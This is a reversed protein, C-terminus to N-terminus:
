KHQAVIELLRTLQAEDLFVREKAFLLRVEEPFQPLIDAIKVALAADVFPLTRLAELLKATQEPTLRTFSEAHQLALQAERPLTRQAAEETLLQKVTALPIPDPM